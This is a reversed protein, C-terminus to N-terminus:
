KLLVDITHSDCPSGPLALAGLIIGIDRSRDISVKDMLGNAMNAKDKAIWEVHPEHLSFIKDTDNKQKYVISSAKLLTTVQEDVSNITWRAYYCRLM